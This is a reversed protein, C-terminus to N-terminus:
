FVLRSEIHNKMSILSKSSGYESLSDQFDALTEISITQVKILYNFDGSIRHLESVEKSDKCFEIFSQCKETKFLIFATVGKDLKDPNLVTNYSLIIKQEELKSIREKVSPQSMAVKQSIKSIPIRANKQLIEMIKYDVVDLDSYNKM